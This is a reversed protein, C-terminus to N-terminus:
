KGSRGRPDRGMCPMETVVPRLAAVSCRMALTVPAVTSVERSWASTVCRSVTSPVHEAKRTREKTVPHRRM